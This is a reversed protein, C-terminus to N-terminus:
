KAIELARESPALCVITLWAIFSFGRQLGTFCFVYILIQATNYSHAIGALNMLYLTALAALGGTAAVFRWKREIKSKM